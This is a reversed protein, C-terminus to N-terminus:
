QFPRAWFSTHGLLLWIQMQSGLNSGWDIDLSSLSFHEETLSRLLSLLPALNLQTGLDSQGKGVLCGPCIAMRAESEESPLSLQLHWVGLPFHPLLDRM